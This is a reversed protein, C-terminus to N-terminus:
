IGYKALPDSPGVQDVTSVKSRASPTAGFQSLYSEFQKEERQLSGVDPNVKFSIEGQTNITEYSFGRIKVAKELERLRGYVASARELASADSLTLIGDSFFQKSLERWKTKAMSSLHAPCRPIAKKPKPESKNVARKGPNGKILKLVTPIPNPSAM